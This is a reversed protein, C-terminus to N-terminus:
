PVVGHICGRNEHVVQDSPAEIFSAARSRSEEFLGGDVDFIILEMLPKFSPAVLPLCIELLQGYGLRVLISRPCNEM